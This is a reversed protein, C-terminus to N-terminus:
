KLGNSLFNNLVQRFRIDDGVLAKGGWVDVRGDEEVLIDINKEKATSELGKAVTRVTSNVDFPRAQLEFKGEEMKQFDLVDNLVSEMMSFSSKIAELVGMQAPSLNAFVGDGDMNHFGLVATNFPVRIEHFIYSVFRRKSAAERIEGGQAVRTAEVQAKLQHRLKFNDREVREQWYFLYFGTLFLGYTYPQQVEPVGTIIYLYITLLGISFALYFTRNLRYISLMFLPGLTGYYLLSTLQFYGGALKYCAERAGHGNKTICLLTGATNSYGWLFGNVVIISTKIFGYPPSKSFTVYLIGFTAPLYIGFLLVLYPM